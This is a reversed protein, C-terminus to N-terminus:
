KLGYRSMRERLTNRSLGLLQCTEGIHGQCRALGEAILKRDYLEVEARGCQSSGTGL